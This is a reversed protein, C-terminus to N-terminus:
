NGSADPTLILQEFGGVRVARESFPWPYTENKVWADTQDVYHADYPHGSSGSQNVWRSADLDGLNVVM